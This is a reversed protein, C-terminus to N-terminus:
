LLIWNALYKQLTQSFVADLFGALAVLRCAAICLVSPHVRIPVLDLWAFVLSHDFSGFYIRFTASPLSDAGINSALPGLDKVFKLWFHSFLRFVVWGDVLLCWFIFSASCKSQNGITKSPNPHIRVTKLHIKISTWQNRNPKRHNGTIKISKNNPEWLNKISKSLKGNIKRRNQHIRYPNRSPPSELRCNEIITDRRPQYKSHIQFRMPGGPRRKSRNQHKPLRRTPHQISIKSSRFTALSIKIIINSSRPTNRWTCVRCKSHETNLVPTAFCASQFGPRLSWDLMAVLAFFM